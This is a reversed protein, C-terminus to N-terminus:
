PSAEERTQPSYHIDDGYLASFSIVSLAYFPALYTLLTDPKIPAVGPLRAIIDVDNRDARRKRLISYGKKLLYHSVATAVDSDDLM